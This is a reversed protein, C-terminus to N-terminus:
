SPMLDVEQLMVDMLEILKWRKDKEPSPIKKPLPPPTFPKPEEAKLNSLSAMLKIKQIIEMNIHHHCNLTSQLLKCERM